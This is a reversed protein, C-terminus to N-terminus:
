AKRIARVRSNQQPVTTAMMFKELLLLHQQLSLADKEPLGELLNELLDHWQQRHEAYRPPTTKGKRELWSEIAREFAIRMTLGHEASLTKFLRHQEPDLWISTAKQGDRRRPM